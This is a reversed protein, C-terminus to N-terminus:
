KSYVRWLEPCLDNVEDPHCTVGLKHKPNGSCLSLTDGAGSYHVQQTRNDVQAGLWQEFLYRNDDHPEPPALRQLYSARAWWFNFWVWGPEAAMFGAKNVAADEAFRQVITRWPRVVEDTLANVYRDSQPDVASFMGKGHHYLVLHRAADREAVSAAIDWVRKIGPYEYHNSLHTAVTFKTSAQGLLESALASAERLLSEGAADETPSSLEVWVSAAAAAVGCDVLAQLQLTVLGRWRAPDPHLATYYVVSVHFTAANGGRRPVSNPTVPVATAARNGLYVFLLLVPTLMLPLLCLRLLRAM